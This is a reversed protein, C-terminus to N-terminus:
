FGSMLLRDCRWHWAASLDCVTALGFVVACSLQVAALLLYICQTQIFFVAVISQVYFEKVKLSLPLNAITM